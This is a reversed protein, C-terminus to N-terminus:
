ELNDTVEVILCSERDFGDKGLSRMEGNPDCILLEPNGLLKGTDKDGM